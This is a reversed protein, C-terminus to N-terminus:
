KRHQYRASFDLFSRRLDHICLHGWSARYYPEGDLISSFAVPRVHVFSRCHKLEPGGVEVSESATQGVM